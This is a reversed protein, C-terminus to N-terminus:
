DIVPTSPHSAMLTRYMTATAMMAIPTAEDNSAVSVARPAVVYVTSVFEFEFRLAHVAPLLLSQLRRPAIVLALRTLVGPSKIIKSTASKGLSQEPDGIETVGDVLL